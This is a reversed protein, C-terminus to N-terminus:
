KRRAPTLDVYAESEPEGPEDRGDVRRGIPVPLAGNELVVALSEAELKTFTGHIQVRAGIRPSQVTPKSHVRGNKVIAIRGHPEQAYMRAAADDLKKAGAETLEFQVIWNGPRGPDQLASASKVDAGETIATPAVLIENRSAGEGSKLDDDPLAVFGEPAPDGPKWRQQLGASAVERLECHWLGALRKLQQFQEESVGDFGVTVEEQGAAAVRFKKLGAALLRKSLVLTTRAVAAQRDGKDDAPFLLRYRVQGGRLEDLGPRPRLFSTFVVYLAVPAAAVVLLLPIIWIWPTKRAAPASADM